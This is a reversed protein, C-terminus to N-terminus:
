SQWKHLKSMQNSSYSSSPSRELMEFSCHGENQGGFTSPLCGHHVFDGCTKSRDHGCSAGRLRGIQGSSWQQKPVDQLRTNLFIDNILLCKFFSICDICDQCLLLYNCIWSDDGADEPVEPGFKGLFERVKQEKAADRAAPPDPIWTNLQLPATPGAAARFASCWEAIVSPSMGLVGCSAMGGAISVHISCPDFM